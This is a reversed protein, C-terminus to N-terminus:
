ISRECNLDCLWDHQTNMACTNRRGTFRARAQLRLGIQTRKNCSLAEMKRKRTSM